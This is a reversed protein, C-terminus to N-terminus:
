KELGVYDTSYEDQAGNVTIDWNELKEIQYKYDM